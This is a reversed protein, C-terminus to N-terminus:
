LDLEDEREPHLVVLRLGHTLHHNPLASHESQVILMAGDYFYTLHRIIRLSRAERRPFHSCIRYALSAVNAAECIECVESKSDVPFQGHKASSVNASRAFTM